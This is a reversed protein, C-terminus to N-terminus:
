PEQLHPNAAPNPSLYGIRPVKGAEQAEAALPALNLSLTLIIALGILRM